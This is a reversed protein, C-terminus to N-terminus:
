VVNLGLDPLVNAVLVMRIPERFSLFYLPHILLALQERHTTQTRRVQDILEGFNSCLPVNRGGCQADAAAMLYIDAM